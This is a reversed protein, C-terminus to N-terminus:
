YTVSMQAPKAHISTKMVHPIKTASIRCNHKYTSNTWRFAAVAFLELQMKTIRTGSLGLLPFLRDNIHKLLQNM